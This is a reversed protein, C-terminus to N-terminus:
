EEELIVVRKERKTKKNEEKKNSKGFLPPYRTMKVEETKWNIKPNYIQLWPIELIVETRGLNCIDIRIRKMHSKYYVNVEVQHIIAGTSNNTRNINRVTMLRKLKQLRFRYRAVIKRNM